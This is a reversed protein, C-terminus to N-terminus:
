GSLLGLLLGAVLAPAECALFLYRLPSYASRRCLNRGNRVLQPALAHGRWRLLGRWLLGRLLWLLLGVLLGNLYRLL